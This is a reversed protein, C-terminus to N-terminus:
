NRRRFSSSDTRKEGEIRRMCSKLNKKEGTTNEKKKKKKKKQKPQEMNHVSPQSLSYHIPVPISLIGTGQSNLSIFIVIIYIM